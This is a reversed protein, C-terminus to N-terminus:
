LCITVEKLDTRLGASFLRPESQMTRLVSMHFPFDYASPGSIQLYNNMHDVCVFFPFHSM